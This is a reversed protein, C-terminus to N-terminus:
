KFYKSLLAQERKSRRVKDIQKGIFPIKAAVRYILSRNSELSISSSETGLATMQTRAVHNSVPENIICLDQNIMFAVISEYFRISYIYKSAFGPRAGDLPEYRYNVRDVLHKAYEIFSYKSPNGMWKYYSCHTDEVILMGGSRINPIVAATTVIQQDNWHGGDDIVVDVPGYKNFFSKWFEINGQDGVEIIFEDSKLCAAESNFEIGIIRAKPGLFQRWMHLSGGDLVGIEVLTFCQGRYERLLEEYVQFYTNAKISKRPSSLFCKKLSQDNSSTKM